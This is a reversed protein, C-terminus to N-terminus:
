NGRIIGIVAFLLLLAGAVMLGAPMWALGAGVSLATFGILGIINKQLEISM